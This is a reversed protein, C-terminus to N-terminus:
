RDRDCARSDQGPAVVPRTADILAASLRAVRPEKYREARLASPLSEQFFQRVILDQETYRTPQRPRKVPEVRVRERIRPQAALPEIYRQPFSPFTRFTTGVVKGFRSTLEAFDYRLFDYVEPAPRSALYEQVMGAVDSLFSPGHSHPSYTGDPREIKRIGSHDPDIHYLEHVITDLKAMWPKAGPYHEEKRSKALTQDCFRPLTFSILYHIRRGGVYVVPSKTVFWMSRRTMRGTQRDRWYYYGPETPPLTLCHCTAFAGEAHSRGYRAFVLVQGLDVFGLAPLRSVIDRMLRTICETYNIM